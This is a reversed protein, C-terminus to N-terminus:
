IHYLLERILQYAKIAVRKKKKKKKRKNESPPPPIPYTSSGRVQVAVVVGTDLLAEDQQTAIWQGRTRTGGSERASDVRIALSLTRILQGESSISLNVRLDPM